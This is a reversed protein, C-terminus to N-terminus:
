LSNKYKNKITKLYKKLEDGSAHPFPTSCIRNRFIRRFNKDENLIREAHKKCPMFGASYNCAESIKSAALHRTVGFHVKEQSINKLYEETCCNPYGLFKSMEIVYDEKGIWKPKQCFSCKCNKNM